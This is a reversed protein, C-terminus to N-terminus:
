FDTYQQQFKRSYLNHACTLVVRSGILFGTGFIRTETKRSTILGICSYPYINTDAVQKRDDEIKLILQKQVENGSFGGIEEESLGISPEENAEM